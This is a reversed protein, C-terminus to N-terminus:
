NNKNYIVYCLLQRHCFTFDDILWILIHTNKNKYVQNIEIKDTHTKRQQCVFM